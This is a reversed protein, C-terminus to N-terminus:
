KPFSSTGHEEHGTDPFAYAHVYTHILIFVFGSKSVSRRFPPPNVKINVIVSITMFLFLVSFDLLTRIFAATGGPRLLVIFSTVYYPLLVLCSSFTQLGMTDNYKKFFLKM